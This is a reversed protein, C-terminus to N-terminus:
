MSVAIVANAGLESKSFGWDKKSGDLVEVMLKDIEAQKTVDFGKLKPAIVKNINDIAKLVGKGKFRTKDRDRLELAEQAGTSAGSPVAARHLGDQTHLDVEIGM